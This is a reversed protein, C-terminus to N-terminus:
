RDEQVKLEISSDDVVVVGVVVVAVVVSVDKLQLTLRQNQETLQSILLSKEKEQLRTSKESDQM